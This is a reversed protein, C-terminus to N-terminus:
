NGYGGKDPRAAAPAKGKGKRQGPRSTRERDADSPELGPAPLGALYSRSAASGPPSFVQHSTGAARSSSAARSGPHSSGASMSISGSASGQGLPSPALVDGSSYLEDADESGTKFRKAGSGSHTSDVDSQTASGRKSTTSIVMHRYRPVQNPLKKFAESPWSEPHVGAATGFAVLIEGHTKFPSEKLEPEPQSASGALSPDRGEKSGESPKLGDGGYMYLMGWTVEALENVKGHGTVHSRSQTERPVAYYKRIEASMYHDRCMKALRELLMSLPNNDPDPLGRVFPLGLMIQKFKPSSSFSSGEPLPQDYFQVFERAFYDPQGTNEHKLYKYSCWNLLHVFSELDDSVEYPKQPCCQMLASMFQWTGSRSHQTSRHLLEKSKALDWDALIARPPADSDPPPDHILINAASIDRHLIGARQWAISHAALAGFIAWVLEPGNRFAELPRCIEKFVLRCHQRPLAHQSGTIQAAEHTLTCQDRLDENPIPLSTKTKVPLDDSWMVDGGGLVTLFGCSPMDDRLKQRLMSYTEYESPINTSISRWSDKIWVPTGAVLDWAVFGKTGRGYVDPKAFSPRGVLYRRLSYTAGQSQESDSVTGAPESKFWPAYIHLVHVPWGPTAAKELHRQIVPQSDFQLSLQRFLAAEAPSALTATPDYGREERTMRSLGYLLRGLVTPDEVYDFSDSVVAGARDFRLLRATHGVVSLMFVHLRHQRNFCEVAYDVLQGRSRRRDDGTPLWKPDNPELKAMSFPVKGSHKKVEVILEATAWSVRYNIEETPAVEGAVHGESHDGQLVHQTTASQLPPAVLLDSSPAPVSSAVPLPTLATPGQSPATSPKPPVQAAADLDVELSHDCIVIDPRLKSTDRKGASLEPYRDSSRAEFTTCGARKFAENIGECLGAYMRQETGSVDVDFKPAAYTPPAKETVYLDLWKEVPICYWDMYM